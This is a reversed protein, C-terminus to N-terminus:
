VIPPKEQTTTGQHFLAQWKQPAIRRWITTRRTTRGQQHLNYTYLYTQDALLQARHGTTAWGDIDAEDDGNAWRERLVDLVTARDYIAGSAGIEWFDETTEALFESECSVINRRHFLPERAKLEDLVQPDNM